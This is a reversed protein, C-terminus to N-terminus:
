DQQKGLLDAAALNVIFCNTVNRMSRNPLVVLLVLINGALAAIFIPVYLCILLITNPESPSFLTDRFSKLRDQIEDEDLNGLGSPLGSQEMLSLDNNYASENWWYWQVLSPDLTMWSINTQLGEGADALEM